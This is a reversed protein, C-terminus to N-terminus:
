PACIQKGAEIRKAIAAEDKASAASFTNAAGGLLTGANITTSGTYTDITGALVGPSVANPLNLGNQTFTLTAGDVLGVAGTGLANNNGVAV